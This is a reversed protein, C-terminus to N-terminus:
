RGNTFQRFDKTKSLELPQANIIATCNKHALVIIGHFVLKMFM